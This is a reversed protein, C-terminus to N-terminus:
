PADNDIIKTLNHPDNVLATDMTNNKPAFMPLQLVGEKSNEGAIDCQARADTFFTPYELEAEEQGDDPFPPDVYLDICKDKGVVQPAFVIDLPTPCMDVFLNYSDKEPFLLQRAELFPPFHIKALVLPIASGTSILMGVAVIVSFCPWKLPPVILRLRRVGTEMMCRSLPKVSAGSSM